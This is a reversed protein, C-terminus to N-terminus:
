NIVLPIGSDPHKGVTVDVDFVERVAESTLVDFPAGCRAVQGDRLLLLQDACRAALNLDHLVIFVGVGQERLQGVIELMMRQHALDLSSTPEDLLLFRPGLPSEDWVQALVRALHVRQKEGGSLRTYEREALHACDVRELAQEVIQTDRKLGSGHPTRGLMAVERVSFPFNLVSHQPLVSLVCARERPRWRFVDVGGLEVRGSDPRREGCLLRLLSTKGAGNPGLAATVEGPRLEVNVDELLKAGSLTLCVDRAVLSM